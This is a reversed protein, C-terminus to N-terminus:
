IIMPIYTLIYMLIAGIAGIGAIKGYIKKKPKKWTFFLILIAILPSFYGIGLCFISILNKYNKNDKYEIQKNIKNYNM